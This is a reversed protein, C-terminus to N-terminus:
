IGVCCTQKPDRPRSPRRERRASTRPISRRPCSPARRPDWRPSPCSPSSARKKTTTARWRSTEQCLELRAPPLSALRPRSSDPSAPADKTEIRVNDSQHLDNPCIRRASPRPIPQIAALSDYRQIPAPGRRLSTPSAPRRPQDDESITLFSPPLPCLQLCSKCQLLHPPGHLLQRSISCNGADFGPNLGQGGGTKTPSAAIVRSEWMQAWRLWSM